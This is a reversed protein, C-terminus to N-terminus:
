QNTPVQPLKFSTWAKIHNLENCSVLTSRHKNYFVGAIEQDDDFTLHVIQQHITSNDFRGEPVSWVHLDRELSAAVVLEDNAGAFCCRIGGYRTWNHNKEVTSTLKKKGVNEGLSIFSALDIVHPGVTEMSM